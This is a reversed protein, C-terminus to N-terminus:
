RCSGDTITTFAPCATSSAPGRGCGNSPRRCPGRRHLLTYLEARPWRRCLVELCKEGGRMGTLWDHVLVARAGGNADMRRGGQPRCHVAFPPPPLTSTADIRSPRSTDEVSWGPEMVPDAPKVPSPPKPLAAARSGTAEHWVAGSKCVHIMDILRKRGWVVFRYRTGERTLIEMGNPIFGLNNRPRADDIEDLPIETVGRQFNIFHSEFIVHRNTVYLRGGVGEWGRFLNAMAEALLEEGDLLESKM